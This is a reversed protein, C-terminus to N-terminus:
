GFNKFLGQVSVTRQSSIPMEPGIVYESSQATINASCSYTGSDSFKIPVLRITITYNPPSVSFTNTVTVRDNSSLLQTGNREWSGRLTVPSDVASHFVVRCTFTIVLGQLFTMNRPSGSITITPQPVLVVVFATYSSILRSM